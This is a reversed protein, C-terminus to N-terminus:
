SEGAGAPAGAGAPHGPRRGEFIALLCEELGSSAAEWTFQAIHERGAAAITERLGRDSAVRALEAGLLDPRRPPATLATQGPISYDPIGGVETAVVACGSAMAEMPPLAWGESWSPSLFLDCERYIAGVRDPAPNREYRDQGGLAHRLRYKGFLHLRLGPAARRAIRLAELGDDIGKWPQLEYVMAVVPPDNARRGRSHFLSGNVGSVVPGWVEVGFRERALRALWSAIVIRELPLRWTEDVPAELDPSFAEYHQIFYSGRGCRAPASAVPHATVWSTALLVDGDPFHRPELAPVQLVHETLGYFALARGSHEVLRDVAWARLARRGDSSWPFDPRLRPAVLRVQHGRALLQRTHEYVVRVGGTFSLFPLVFTVRLRPRSM